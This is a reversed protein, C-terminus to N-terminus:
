RKIGFLLEPLFSVNITSKLLLIIINCDWFWVLEDNRVGFASAIKNIQM